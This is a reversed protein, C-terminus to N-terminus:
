DGTEGNVTWDYAPPPPVLSKLTVSSGSLATSHPLATCLEPSSLCFYLDTPMNLQERM